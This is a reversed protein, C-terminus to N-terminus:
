PRTWRSSKPPTRPPWQADPLQARTRLPLVSLVATAHPQDSLWRGSSSCEIARHAEFFDRYRHRLPGDAPSAPKACCRADSWAPAVCYQAILEFSTKVAGRSSAAAGSSKTQQEESAAKSSAARGGRRTQHAPIPRRFDSVVDDSCQRADRDGARSLVCGGITGPGAPGLQRLRRCRTAAQLSTADWRGLTSPRWFVRDALGANARSSRERQWAGRNSFALGRGVRGASGVGAVAAEVDSSM